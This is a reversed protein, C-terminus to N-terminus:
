KPEPYLTHLAWQGTDSKKYVGTMTGDTFATPQTGTPHNKSGLRTKGSVQDKYSPGFIQELPMEVVAWDDGAAEAAATEAAFAASDTLEQEAQVFAEPSNIKTAHRGVKHPQGTFADTTTGSVPDIGHVVRDELQQESIQGEHRQPGHGQAALEAMRAAVAKQAAALPCGQTAGVDGNPIDSTKAVADQAKSAADKSM